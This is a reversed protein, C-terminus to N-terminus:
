AIGGMRWNSVNNATAKRELVMSHAIPGWNICHSKQLYRPKFVAPEEWWSDARTITLDFFFHHLFGLSGRKPSTNWSCPPFIAGSWFMRRDNGLSFQGAWGWFGLATFTCIQSVMLAPINWCYLTIYRVTTRFQGAVITIRFFTGM